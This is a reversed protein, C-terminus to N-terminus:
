FSPKGATNGGDVPLVVGTIFSADDSLLFAVASAIEEPEGIRGLPYAAHIRKVNEPDVLSSTVMPTRIIGPAIANVRIGMPGLELSMAQTIGSVGMKAAVYAMRNPVARVGATSSINVIAGPKNASKLARAFVQCMNFTGDLNVALVRKWVEPTIELLSGIGRIGACNVMGYLDYFRKAVDAVVDSVQEHNSVDVGVVHIRESDKFECVLKEVDVCRIDMAVVTAREDYLRRMCAAGIGSGAGTVIITKGEFRNM